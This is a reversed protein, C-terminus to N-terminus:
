APRRRPLRHRARTSRRSTSAACSPSHVARCSPTSLSSTSTPCRPASWQSSWRKRRTTSCPRSPRRPSSCPRSSRWGARVAVGRCSRAGARTSRGTATPRVTRGPTFGREPLPAVFQPAAVPPAVDPVVPASSAYTSVPAAPTAAIANSPVPISAKRRRGMAKGPLIDIAPAYYQTAVPVPEPLPEPSPSPFPERVPAETIPAFAVELEAPADVEVPESPPEEVAVPEAAGRQRRGFLGRRRAPEEAVVDVIPEDVVPEAVLDAAVPEDAVADDITVQEVDTERPEPPFAEFAVPEDIAPAVVISDAAVPEVVVPEVAVPEVAVPEDAVPWAFQPPGTDFVPTFLEEAAPAEIDSEVVAEAAPLFDTEEAVPLSAVTEAVSEEPVHKDAVWQRRGFLGRRRIPEAVAAEDAVLEPTAVAVPEFTDPVYSPPEYQEPASAVPESAAPEFSVPQYAAPEEAVSPEEVVSQEAASELNTPEVAQENRRTRGSRRRSRRPTPLVGAAEEAPADGDTSVDSVVEADDLVGEAVQWEARPTQEELDQHVAIDDVVAATGAVAVDLPAEDTPETPDAPEASKDRRRPFFSGRRRASAVIEPAVEDALEADALEADALEADAVVADPGEADPLAFEPLETAPVVPFVDVPVVDAVVEDVPADAADDDPAVVAPGDPEDSRSRRPLLRRRSTDTSAPSAFHVDAASATPFASATGASTSTTSPTSRPPPCGSAVASGGASRAVTAPPRHGSPAAIDLFHAAFEARREPMWHGFRRMQAAFVPGDGPDLRKLAAQFATADVFHAANESAYATCGISRLLAVTDLAARDAAPLALADGLATAVACTRLGKEFPLGSAFDTTLSWAAFVEAVRIM